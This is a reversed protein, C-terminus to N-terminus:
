TTRFLQIMLPRCSLNRYQTDVAQWASRRRFLSVVQQTDTACTYHTYITKNPNQNLRVFKATLYELAANYDSGGTYDSFYNALPSVAIKQQFLDTKNMFLILSSNVFWRSNCISDFLTLAEDM